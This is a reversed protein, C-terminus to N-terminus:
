EGIYPTLLSEWGSRSSCSKDLVYCETPPSEMAATFFSGYEKMENVDYLTISLTTSAKETKTKRSVTTVTQLAFCKNLAPSYHNRYGAIMQGGDTNKIGEGWDRRFVEESRKGCRELLEYAEKDPGAAASPGAVVPLSALVLWVILGQRSM